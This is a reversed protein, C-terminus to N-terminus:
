PFLTEQTSTIVISHTNSVRIDMQRWPKFVRSSDGLVKIHVKNDHIVTLTWGTSEELRFWEKIAASIYIEHGALDNVGAAESLEEMTFM